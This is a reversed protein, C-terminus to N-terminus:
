TVIHKDVVSGDGDLEYVVPVGTAIELRTVADDDLGDLEKVISRLSNGHASVLVTAVELTAPLVIENFYPLTRKATDALSEGGPPPIDYSRRWIHVQEAGFEEATQAKNRGTLAGYFRENLQWARVQDLAHQGLEDLVIRGTDIARVLTSTFARDVHVRQSALRQGGLRAEERGNASLPTDVWGTFRNEANWTSQGHRLLILTSM